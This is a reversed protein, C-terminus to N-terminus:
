PRLGARLACMACCVGKIYFPHTHAATQALKPPLKHLLKHLTETGKGNLMLGEKPSRNGYKGIVGRVIKGDLMAQRMAKELESKSCGDALQYDLLNGPCIHPHHRATRRGCAWRTCAEFRM